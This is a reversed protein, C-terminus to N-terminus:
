TGFRKDIQRLMEDRVDQYRAPLDIAPNAYDSPIGPLRM